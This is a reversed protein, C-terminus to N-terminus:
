SDILCRDVANPKCVNVSAEHIEYGLNVRPLEPPDNRFGSQEKHSITLCGIAFSIVEQIRM